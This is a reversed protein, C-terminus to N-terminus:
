GLVRPAQHLIQCTPLPRTRYIWGEGPTLFAVELLTNLLSFIHNFPCCHSIRRRQSKEDTSGMQAGAANVLNEELETEFKANNSNSIREASHAM